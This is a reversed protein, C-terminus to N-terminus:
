FAVGLARFVHEYMTDLGLWWAATAAAAILPAGVVYFAIVRGRTSAPAGAGLRAAWFWAMVVAFGAIVAGTLVFARDAPYWRWRAISGFYAIPRLFVGVGAFFLLIGWATGYHIAATMRQERRFAAAHAATVGVRIFIMALWILLLAAAFASVVGIVMHVPNWWLDVPAEDPTGPPLPRPAAAVHLWGQGTPMTSGTAEAVRSGSVSRWGVRSSQLLAFAIAVLLVNIRAFRRSAASARMLALHKLRNTGAFWVWEAMRRWGPEHLSYAKAYPTADDGTARRDTFGLGFGCLSCREATPSEVRQGCAPCRRAEVRAAATTPTM